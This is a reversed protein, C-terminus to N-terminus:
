RVAFAACVRNAADRYLRPAIPKLKTLVILRLPM